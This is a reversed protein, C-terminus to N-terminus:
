PQQVALFVGSQSQLGNMSVVVPQDGSSLSGPVTVNFQYLGPSSLGTFGVDARVGGITIQVTKVLPAAGSFLSDSPVPPNTPGFGTGFLLIIEGPKAPRTTLATSYLGPPGLYSGDLAVSAAYKRNQPDFLFLAPSAPVLNAPVPDSAGDPQTVVVNVPGTNSDDPALVNVQTPSVYYVAALKGDITVSVNELSTPLKGNVFDRHTWSRTTKALNTGKISVWSGSVMGPAMSAGNIIGDSQIVPKTAATATLRASTSYIHDGQNNGNGNAANAAVYFVIDGAAASPPTWDFQFSVPGSTGNRTGGVTHTLWQISGDTGALQTNDDVPAMTGAGTNADSALRPSAEFGWRRQAADTLTVTVHVAQGPTYTLGGSFSVSVSGSFSNATGGHCAVCTTEGPAGSVGTPAGFSHAFAPAPSLIIFLAAFSKRSFSM